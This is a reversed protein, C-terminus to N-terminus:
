ESEELLRRLRTLCRGRVSGITGIALGTQRALERYSVKKPGLFLARLLTQCNRSLRRLAAHVRAQLEIRELEDDPLAAPDILQDKLEDVWEDHTVARKFAIRRTAVV